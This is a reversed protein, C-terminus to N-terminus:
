HAEAEKKLVMYELLLINNFAPSYFYYNIYSWHIFIHKLFSPYSFAARAQFFIFLKQNSNEFDSIDPIKIAPPDYGLRLLSTSLIIRELINTSQGLLLKMDTILQPKYKELEPINFRGILRSLHYLLVSSKVYYPSLFAPDKMYERNRIIQSLLDITASDQKVLKLKRDLMFYLINCHVGFDFDPNMGYGLYTSYAPINRYKPYTSIIKKRALNSVEIMRKKLINCTSDGANQAMLCMLADDVDEGQGFIGNLYKFVYTHPLIGSNSPWFNYYPLGKKDQFWHFAHQSKAIITDVEKKDAEGLYPVLNRLIFIGEATYFINNDPQYNHPFGGCERYGPFMGTYYEGDKSVQVSAINQILYHILKSINQQARISNSCFIFFLAVILKKINKSKGFLFRM